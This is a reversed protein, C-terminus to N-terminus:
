LDARKVDSVDFIVCAYLERNNGDSISIYVKCITNNTTYKAYQQITAVTNAAAVGNYRTGKALGSLLKDLAVCFSVYDACRRQTARTTQKQM